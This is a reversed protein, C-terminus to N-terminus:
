NIAVQWLIRRVKFLLRIADLMVILLVGRFVREIDAGGGFLVGEWRNQFGYLVIKIDRSETNFLSHVVDFVVGLMEYYIREIGDEEGLSRLVIRCIPEM